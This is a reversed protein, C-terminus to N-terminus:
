DMPSDRDTPNYVEDDGDSGYSENVSIDLRLPIVEVRAVEVPAVQLTPTPQAMDSKSKSQSAPAAVHVQGFYSGAILAELTVGGVARSARVRAEQLAAEEEVDARPRLKPVTRELILSAAALDGAVAKQLVVAIVQRVDDETIMETRLLNAASKSGKPRGNPNPSPEGRRFKAM